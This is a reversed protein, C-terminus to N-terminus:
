IFLNSIRYRTYRNIEVYVIYGKNLKINWNFAYFTELKSYLTRLVDFTLVSIIKININLKDVTIKKNM